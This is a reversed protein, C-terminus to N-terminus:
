KLSSKQKLNGWLYFNCINLDLSSTPWWRRSIWEVNQMFKKITSATENDQKFYV